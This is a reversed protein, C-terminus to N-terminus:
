DTHNREFQVNSHEKKTQHEKNSNEKNNNHEDSIATGNEISHEKVSHNLTITNSFLFVFIIILPIISFKTLYKTLYSSRKVMMQFRKHTLSYNLNSTLCNTNDWNAIDLLIHQYKPTNKYMNIVAEDAIFEHNLRISRKVFILIPNFWFIIQFLEVFLIDITHKERAHTLEHTFLEDKINKTDFDEKNLFIYNLFTHPLAKDELLVLTADDRKIHTNHKIKKIILLTNILFKSLFITTILLYVGLIYNLYDSLEFSNVTEVSLAGLPSVITSELYLIYNPIAISFLLIGLLYYRNFQHIKQKELIIIYFTFLLVLCITSKILFTIM